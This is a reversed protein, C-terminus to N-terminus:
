DWWWYHFGQPMLYLTGFALLSTVGYAGLYRLSPRCQPVAAMVVVLIPLVMITAVMMSGFVGWTVHAHLALAASFEGDPIGIFEPWGGLSQYM